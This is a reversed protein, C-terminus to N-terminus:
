AVIAALRDSCSRSNKGAVEVPTRQRRQDVGPRLRRREVGFQRGGDADGPRRQRAVRHSDQAPRRGLRDLRPRVAERLELDVALHQAVLRDHDGPEPQLVGVQNEAGIEQM